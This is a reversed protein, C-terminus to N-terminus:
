VQEEMLKEYAAKTFRHYELGFINQEIHYVYPDISEDSFYFAWESDGVKNVTVDKSYKYFCESIDELTNNPKKIERVFDKMFDSPSYNKHVWEFGEASITIAYRGKENELEEIVVNGLYEEEKKLFESIRNPLKDISCELLETLSSEPYYFTILTSISGLKVESELINDIINRELKNM